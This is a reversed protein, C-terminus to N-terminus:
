WTRAKAASEAKRKAHSARLREQGISALASKKNKARKGGAFGYAIEIVEQASLTKDDAISTYVEKFADADKLTAKLQRVWSAVKAADLVRANARAMDEDTDDRGGWLQMIGM